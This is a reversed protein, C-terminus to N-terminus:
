LSKFFKAPIIFEGKNRIFNKCIEILRSRSDGHARGYRAAATDSDTGDNDAFTSDKEFMAEMLGIQEKTFFQREYHWFDEPGLRVEGLGDRLLEAKTRDVWYDGKTEPAMQVDFKLERVQDSLNELQRVKLRDFVMMSSILFAGRACVKCTPGDDPVLSCVQQDQWGTIGDLKSTDILNKSLVYTGKTAKYKEAKLQKLVDKAVAVRREAPTMSDYLANKAAIEKAVRKRWAEAKASTQRSSKVSKGESMIVAM